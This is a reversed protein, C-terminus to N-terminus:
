NTLKHGLSVTVTYAGIKNKSTYRATDVFSGGGAKGNGLTPSASSLSGKYATEVTAKPVIRQSALRGAIKIKIGTLQSVPRTTNTSSDLLDLDLSDTSQNPQTAIHAKNFLKTLMKNFNYKNSNLGILQALILSDHYPYQLPVLELEVEKNFIQSLMLGLYKFNSSEVKFLKEIGASSAATNEQASSLFNNDFVVRGPKYFCLHIKVKNPSIIFVPKGILCNNSAFYYKLLIKANAKAANISLKKNKNFNYLILDKNGTSVGQTFSKTASGNTLLKTLNNLM